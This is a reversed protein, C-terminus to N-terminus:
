KNLIVFKHLYFEIHVFIIYYHKIVKIIYIKIFLRLGLQFFKLLFLIFSAMILRRYDKLNLFFIINWKLAKLSSSILVPIVSITM